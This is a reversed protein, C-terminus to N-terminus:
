PHFAPIPSIQPLQIMHFGEGVVGSVEIAVMFIISYTKLALLTGDPTHVNSQLPIGTPYAITASLFMFSIDKVPLVQTPLFIATLTASLNPFDRSSSPPFLQVIMQSSPLRSRAILPQVKPAQPVLPYLHVVRLLSTM